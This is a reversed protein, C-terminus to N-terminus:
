NFANSLSNTYSEDGHHDFSQQNRVYTNDSQYIRNRLEIGEKKESDFYEKNNLLEIIYKSKDQVGKGREANTEDIFSFTTLSRIKYIEDKFSTFCRDHGFKL